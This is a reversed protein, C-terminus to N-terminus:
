CLLIEMEFYYLCGNLLMIYVSTGILQFHLTIFLQHECQQDQGVMMDYSYNLILAFVSDTLLVCFWVVVAASRSNRFKFSDNKQLECPFCM